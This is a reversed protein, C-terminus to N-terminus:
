YFYFHVLDREYEFIIDDYGEYRQRNCLKGERRRRWMALLVFGCFVIFVYRLRGANRMAFLLRCRGNSNMTKTKM